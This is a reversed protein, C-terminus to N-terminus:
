GSGRIGSAEVGAILLRGDVKALSKLLLFTLALLFIACIHANAAAVLQSSEVTMSLARTRSYKRNSRSHTTLSSSFIEEGSALFTLHIRIYAINCVNIETVRAGISTRSVSPTEYGRQQWVAPVGGQFVSNMPALVVLKCVVIEARSLVALLLVISMRGSGSQRVGAMILAVRRVIKEREVTDVDARGITGICGTLGKVTLEAYVVRVEVGVEMYGAELDRERRVEMEEMAVVMVLRRVIRFLLDAPLREGGVGDMGVSGMGSIGCRLM